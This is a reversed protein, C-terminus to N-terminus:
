PTEGALVRRAVDCDDFPHIVGAIEQGTEHGKGAILLVDDPGLWSIATAIAQGRDGIETADPCGRLVEARIAAADEGRPNDDTVVIRDALEAAIRGMQPRKGRDRDGGCGFVVVLGGKTHPRLATIAARLAEPKHSYDGYIRGGNAVDGVAQLRGP